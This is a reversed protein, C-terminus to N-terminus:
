RPPRWGAALLAARVQEVVEAPRHRIAWSPFRLVRDGAVWLENQRWMDQWYARVETHQGGDIEIHIRWEEYYGDLYRARGGTDCRRVQLRPVPLDARHLERVFQAEPLSHAGGAADRAAQLILARRPIRVLRRVTVEIEDGAVLRQQFGAAIVTHAAHDTAAWQAADVLSRAATTHPPLGLLNVEDRTLRTTRHPRVGPPLSHQFRAPILVHVSRSPHGRLGCLAAATAGALFAHRGAALYAIWLVESQTIPGDHAVYVGDHARQWRGSRLRHELAKASLHALAQGRSLVNQQRWL